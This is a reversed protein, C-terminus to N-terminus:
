LIWIVHDHCICKVYLAAKIHMCIVCNCVHLTYIYYPVLRLMAYIEHHNMHPSHHCFGVQEVGDTSKVPYNM